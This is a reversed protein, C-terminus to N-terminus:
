FVMTLIQDCLVHIQLMQVTLHHIDQDVINRNSASIFFCMLNRDFNVPIESM